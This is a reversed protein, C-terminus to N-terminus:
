GCPREAVRDGLRSLGAWAQHGAHHRGDAARRQGPGAHVHRVLATLCERLRPDAAGEFSGAVAETITDETIDAPGTDRSM